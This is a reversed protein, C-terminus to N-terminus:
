KPHNAVDILHQKLIESLQKVTERYHPDNVLNTFEHPDTSLDYLEAGDQEGQEVWQTYRYYSQRVSNGVTGDAHRIMSFTPRNWPHKPDKILAGISTGDLGKPAPLGALEALTPYLDVLEVPAAVMQNKAGNPSVIILPVRTAEDFMSAKGWIGHEGLLFGHDSTLAVVTNDWLKLRTLAELIHGVQTDVFTVSAYYAALAQRHLDEPMSEGDRRTTKLAGAPIDTRDNAPEAPLELDKHSYMDYYKKSIDFPLHTKKLGVALFFLRDKNDELLEVTRQALFGDFEQDEERDTIMWKIPQGRSKIEYRHNIYIRELYRNWLTWYATKLDNRVYLDPTFNFPNHWIKGIQMTYYGQQDFYKPLIELDKIAEPSEQHNTYIGLHEPYRSTLISTRSPNCLPSQVYASQFTVGQKALTDINPSKIVKNGYVGLDTSLDDVFILLVNHKAAQAQTFALSMSLIVFLLSLRNINLANMIMGKFHTPHIRCALAALIYIM